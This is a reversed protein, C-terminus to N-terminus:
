GVLREVATQFCIKCATPVFPHDERSQCSGCILAYCVRCLEREIFATEAECANCTFTLGLDIEVGSAGCLVCHAIEEEAVRDVIFAEYCHACRCRTM